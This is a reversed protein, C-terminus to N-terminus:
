AERVPSDGDVISESSCFLFYLEVFFNPSVSKFIIFVLLFLTICLSIVSGHFRSLPFFFGDSIRSEVPAVTTAGDSKRSVLLLFGKFLPMELCFGERAGACVPVCARVLLIMVLCCM